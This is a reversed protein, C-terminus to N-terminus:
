TRFATELLIYSHSRRLRWFVLGLNRGCHLPALVRWFGDGLHGFCSLASPGVFGFAPAHRGDPHIGRLHRIIFPRRRMRSRRDVAPDLAPDHRGSPVANYVRAVSAREVVVVAAVRGVGFLVTEDDLGQANRAMDGYAGFAPAQVTVGVPADGGLAGASMAPHREHDRGCSPGLLGSDVAAPLM